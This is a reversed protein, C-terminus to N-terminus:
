VREWKHSTIISVSHLALSWARPERKIIFDTAAAQNAFRRVRPEGGTQPVYGLEYWSPRGQM